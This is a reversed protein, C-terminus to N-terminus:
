AAYPVTDRFPTIILHQGSAFSSAWTRATTTLLKPDVVIAGNIHITQRDAVVQVQLAELALRKDERSASVLWPQIAACVRALHEPRLQPGLAPPAHLERRERELRQRRATIDKLRHDLLAGSFKGDMVLDLLKTEQNALDSLEVDIAAIRGTDTNAEAQRRRADLIMAPDALIIGLREWVIREVTDTHLQKADCAFARTRSTYHTCRYYRYFHPPRSVTHGTLASQCAGCRIRGVLAFSDPQKPPRQRIPDALLQQTRDYTEQSIIAPSVGPIETWKERPHDILISRKKGTLPDRRSVFSRQGFYTHGAYTENQLMRRLTLPHWKGGGMAPIGDNNLEVSVGHCSRTELFRLFIRAVVLAQDPHLSRTKTEPHYLYGYCGTNTGQPMQGARARELKGRMTREAIKERELEGAFARASLLFKGVATNELTETVFQLQYGYQESEDLLVAIHTQNRSLRDVAYAVLMDAHRNRLQGRIRELGPRDLSYGSATDRAVDVVRFGARDAFAQLATSQSELSTGDDEQGDTSGRCYLVVRTPGPDLPPPKRSM